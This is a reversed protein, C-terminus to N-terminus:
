LKSDITVKNSIISPFRILHVQISTHTLTLVDTYM